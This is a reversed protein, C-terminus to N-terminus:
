AHFFAFIVQLSLAEEYSLSTQWNVSSEAELKCQPSIRQQRLPFGAIKKKLKLDKVRVKLARCSLLPSGNKSSITIWIKTGFLSSM